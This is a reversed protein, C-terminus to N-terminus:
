KPTLKMVRGCVSCAVGNAGLSTWFVSTAGVALSTMM